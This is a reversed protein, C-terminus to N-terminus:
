FTANTKLSAISSVQPACSAMSLAIILNMKAYHEFSHMLRSMNLSHVDTLKLLLEIPLWWHVFTTGHDSHVRFYRSTWTSHHLSTGKGRKRCLITKRCTAHLIFEREIDLEVLGCKKLSQGDYKEGRNCRGQKQAMCLIM